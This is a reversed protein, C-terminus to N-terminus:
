KRVFVLQNISVVSNASQFVVGSFVLEINGVELTDDLQIMGFCELM